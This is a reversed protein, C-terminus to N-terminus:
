GTQDHIEAAPDIGLHWFLTAAFDEPSVPQDKVYAGIKDSAGYVQGGPIGAGAVLASYCQPWHDRGPAPRGGGDIKVIPTRGFEGVAVVLTTELLGRQELDELLASLAQDLRPLAFGLGVQSTGFISTDKAAGSKWGHMDWTQGGNWFPEGDPVGAWANVSVLRVGAEILRRALLFNQGMPHRGYGDRIRDPERKLDFAQRAQSGTLIELTREQLQQFTAEPSQSAATSGSVATLQKLLRYREQLRESSVGPAPDFVRVRFNPAAPNALDKGILLPGYHKGLFGGTLYNRASDKGLDQLWVYPLFHPTPRLKALVSGFAPTDLKPQSHGTLCVEMASDHRTDGHSLSRILCYRDALRALRPQLEAIRMGPVATAIPQYPGRINEPADPKPDWTDIHSAGGYLVIFICSKAAKSRGSPSRSPASAWLLDPLTLGILSLSGVQVLQRRTFLGDRNRYLKM